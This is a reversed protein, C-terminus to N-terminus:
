KNSDMKDEALTESETESEELNNISDNSDINSDKDGKVKYSGTAIENNQLYDVLQFRLKNEFIYTYVAYVVLAVAMVIFVPAIEGFILVILPTIMQGSVIGDQRAILAKNTCGLIKCKTMLSDMMFYSCPAYAFGFVFFLIYVILNNRVFPIVALPMACIIGFVLNASRLDFKKMILNLNLVGLLNAIQFMANLYGAKSFTPVDVFLYLTYMNTFVDIVCFIFYFLFYQLIFDKVISKRKEKLEPEKDYVIVANSVFDRNFGKKGRNFLYYIFLPAVSILYLTMSLIILATQSWDLFLGGAISAVISSLAEVVRSISLKSQAKKKSSYNLLVGNANNKISASLGYSISVIIIGVVMFKDLFILTINYILLPITRLLLMLQPYRSYGRRFIHNGVIRFIGQGLLFLVALRINSTAKYILLPIFAGVLSTAFNALFKHFNLLKFQTDKGM